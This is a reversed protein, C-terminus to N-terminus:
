QGSLLGLPWHGVCLLSSLTSPTNITPPDLLYLPLLREQWGVSFCRLLESNFGLCAFRDKQSNYSFAIILFLQHIYNEM